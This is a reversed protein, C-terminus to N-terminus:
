SRKQKKARTSHGPKGSLKRPLADAMARIAASEATLLAKAASSRLQSYLRSLPPQNGPDGTPKAAGALEMKRDASLCLFDTAM